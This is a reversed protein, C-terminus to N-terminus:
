TRDDSGHYYMMVFPFFFVYLRAVDFPLCLDYTQKCLRVLNVVFIGRRWTILLLFTM